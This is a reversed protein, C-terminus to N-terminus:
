GILLFQTIGSASGIIVSGAFVYSLGSAIQGGDRYARHIQFLCYFACLLCGALCGWVLFGVLSMLPDSLEKPASYDRTDYVNKDGRGPPKYGDLFWPNDAFCYEQDSKPLIPKNTAPNKWTCPHTTLDKYNSSRVDACGRQEEEVLANCPNENIGQPNPFKENGIKKKNDKIWNEMGDVSDYECFTSLAIGPSNQYGNPRDHTRGMAGCKAYNQYTYPIKGPCYTRFKSGQLDRPVQLCLPPQTPSAAPAPPSAPPPPDM